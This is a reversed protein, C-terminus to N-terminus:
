KFIRLTVTDNLDKLTEADQLDIILGRLWKIVRQRDKDSWSRVSRLVIRGLMEDTFKAKKKVQPKYDKETIM